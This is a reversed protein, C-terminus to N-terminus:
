LVSKIDAVAQRMDLYIMGQKANKGALLLLLTGTAATKMVALGFEGRVLVEEVEGRALESAARLGLSHLTATIGGVTLDDLEAPLASAIILGDDSILACAEVEPSMRQMNKLIQNLKEVRSM